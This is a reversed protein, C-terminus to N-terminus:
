ECMCGDFVIVFYNECRTISINKNKKGMDMFFIYFYFNFGYFALMKPTILYTFFAVNVHMYDCINCKLYIFVNFTKKNYM